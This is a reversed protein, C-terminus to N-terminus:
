AVVIVLLCHKSDADRLQYRGPSMQFPFSTISQGKAITCVSRLMRRLVRYRVAQILLTKEGDLGNALAFQYRTYAKLEIRPARDWSLSVPVIVPPSSTYGFTRGGPRTPALAEARSRAWIFYYTDFSPNSAPSRYMLSAVSQLGGASLMSAFDEERSGAYNEQILLSAGPNLYGAVRAYFKRHCQWDPDHHRLSNAYQDVFHPPNSVVLDWREHPPVADLADSVYVSVRDELNNRRVTEMAIEVAERNIDSLCLSDCLGAALLSFGIFGPGACFEYARGVKGFLERVIPVYTQGFGM